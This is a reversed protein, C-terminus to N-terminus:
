YLVELVGVEPYYWDARVTNGDVYVVEGDKETVGDSEYLRISIPIGGLNHMAIWSTAPSVFSFTLTNFGGSTGPTGAPGQAGQAGSMGPTGAPGVVPVVLQVTDPPPTVFEVEPAAVELILVDPPAAAAFTPPEVTVVDPLEPVSVGDFTITV